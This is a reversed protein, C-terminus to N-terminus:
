NSFFDCVHFLSFCTEAGVADVTTDINPTTDTEKLDLAILHNNEDLIYLADDIVAMHKIKKKMKWKFWASQVRKEGAIFYRYGYIVDTNTVTLLILNNESSNTVLDIDKPLLEPIIVSQELIDPERSRQVNIMEFFRTKKGANDLFGTTTGLSIPSIKENYNYSAIPDIKATEATLVEAEATM